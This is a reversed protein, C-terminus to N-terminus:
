RLRMYVGECEAHASDTAAQGPAACGLGVNVTAWHSAAGCPKRHWIERQPIDRSIDFAYNM